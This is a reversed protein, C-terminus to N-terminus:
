FVKCFFTIVATIVHTLFMKYFARKTKETRTFVVFTTPFNFGTTITLLRRAYIVRCFALGTIVILTPITHISAYVAVINKTLFMPYFAGLTTIYTNPTSYHMKM